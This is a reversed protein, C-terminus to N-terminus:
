DRQDPKARRASPTPIIYEEVAWSEVAQVDTPFKQALYDGVGGHQNAIADAASQGRIPSDFYETVRAMARAYLSARPIEVATSTEPLDSGYSLIESM